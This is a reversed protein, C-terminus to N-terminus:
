AELDVEVREADDPRRSRSGDRTGGDRVNADHRGRLEAGLVPVAHADPGTPEPATEPEQPHTPDGERRPDGPEIAEHDDTQVARPWEQDGGLLGFAESRREPTACHSRGGPMSAPPGDRAVEALWSRHKWSRGFVHRGGPEVLYQVSASREALRAHYAGRRADDPGPLHSRAHAEGELVVRVICPRGSRDDALEGRAIRGAPRCPEREAGVLDLHPEVALDSAGDGDPHRGAVARLDVERGAFEHEHEFVQRGAHLAVLEGAARHLLRRERHLLERLQVRWAPVVGPEATDLPEISVRGVRRVREALHEQRLEQRSEELPIGIAERRGVDGQGLQEHAVDAAEDALPGTGAGDLVAVVAEVVHEEPRGGAAMREGHDVPLRDYPSRRGEVCGVEQACAKPDVIAAPVLAVQQPRIM